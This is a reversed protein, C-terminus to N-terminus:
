FSTGFTTGGQSGVARRTQMHHRKSEISKTIWTYKEKREGWLKEWLEEWIGKGERRLRLVLREEREVRKEKTKVKEREKKREKKKENEKELRRREKREENEKESRRREKKIEAHKERKEVIKLLTEDLCKKIKEKKEKAVEKNEIFIARWNKGLILKWDEEKDGQAKEPIMTRIKM